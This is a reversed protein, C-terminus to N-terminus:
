ADSSDSDDDEDSFKGKQATANTSAFLSNEAAEEASQGPNGSDEDESM